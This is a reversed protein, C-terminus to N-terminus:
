QATTGRKASRASLVLAALIVLCGAIEGTSPIAKLLAAALLVAVVMEFSALMSATAASIYRLGLNYAGYGLLTTVFGMYALLLWSAPTIHPLDSWGTTLSKYLVIWFFGFLQAWAFLTATPLRNERANKRAVLSQITMGVMSFSAAAVGWLPWSAQANRPDTLATMCGVGVIILICAFIQMGTPREKLILAGLLTTFLPFTYFIIECTAVSLYTLAVTFGVYMFGATAGGYFLLFFFARPGVMLIRPSAFGFWLFCGLAALGARVTAVTQPQLQTAGKTAVVLTGWLFAGFLVLLSGKLWDPLRM